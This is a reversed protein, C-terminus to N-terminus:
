DGACGTEAVASRERDGHRPMVIRRWGCPQDRPLSGRAQSEISGAAGPDRGRIAAGTGGRPAGFRKREAGVSFRSLERHALEPGGAGGPSRTGRNGNEAGRLGWLRRGGIRGSRRG